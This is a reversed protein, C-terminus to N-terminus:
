RINGSDTDLSVCIQTFLITQSRQFSSRLTFVTDQDLYLLWGESPVFGRLNM